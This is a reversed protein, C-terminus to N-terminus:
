AGLEQTQNKTVEQAWATTLYISEIRALSEALFQTADQVMEDPAPIWYGAGMMSSTSMIPVGQARLSAIAGRINRDSEGIMDQLHGRGVANERGTPLAELVAEQLRTYKRPKTESM